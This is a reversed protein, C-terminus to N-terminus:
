EFSWVSMESLGSSTSYVIEALTYTAKALLLTNFAKRKVKDGIKIEVFFFKERRSQTDVM